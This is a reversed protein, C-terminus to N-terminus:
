NEIIIRAIIINNVLYRSKFLYPNIPVLGLVMHPPPFPGQELSLPITCQAIMSWKINATKRRELFTKKIDETIIHYNTDIEGLVYIKM